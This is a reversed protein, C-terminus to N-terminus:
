KGCKTDSEEDEEDELDDYMEVEEDIMRRRDEDSPEGKFPNFDPDTEEAPTPEVVPTPAIQLGIFQLIETEYDRVDLDPMKAERIFDRLAGFTPSSELLLKRKNDLEKLDHLRLRQVSLLLAQKRHKAAVEPLRYALFLSLFMQLKAACSYCHGLKSFLPKIKEMYALFEEETCQPLLDLLEQFATMGASGSKFPHADYFRNGIHSGIVFTIEDKTM